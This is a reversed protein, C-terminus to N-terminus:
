VNVSLADGCSRQVRRPSLQALLPESGGVGLEDVAQLPERTALLDHELRAGEPFVEIIGCRLGPGGDNEGVTRGSM